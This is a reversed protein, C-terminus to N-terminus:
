VAMTLLFVYFYTLDDVALVRYVDAINIKQKIEKYNDMFELVRRAFDGILRNCLIM